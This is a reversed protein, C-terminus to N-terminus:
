VLPEKQYFDLLEGKSGDLNPQETETSWDSMFHLGPGFFTAPQKVYQPQTNTAKVYGAYATVGALIREPKHGEKIRATWHRKADSWSAGPRKPYAKKAQEFIDEHPVSVPM